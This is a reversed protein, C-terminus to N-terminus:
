EGELQELGILKKRRELVFSIRYGSIDMTHFFFISHFDIAATLQKLVLM